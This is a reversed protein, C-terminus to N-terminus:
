SRLWDPVKFQDPKPDPLARKRVENIAPHLNIEDVRLALNKYYEFDDHLLQAIYVATDDDKIQQLLFDFTDMAAFRNCHIAVRLINQIASGKLIFSETNLFIIEMKDAVIEAYEFRIPHKIFENLADSYHLMFPEFHSKLQRAFVILAYDPIKDFLSIFVNQNAQLTGLENIFAVYLDENYSGSKSLQEIQLLKSELSQIPNSEPNLSLQYTKLAQQLEAVSQYRQDPNHSTAKQLIHYLGPTLKKSDFLHPYDCTYLEYFTKGLQFVDTREDANKGQIQEPADYGYTGIFRNSSTHDSSDSHKMKALGFDSLLIENNIGLLINAPKIDRHYLGNQHLHAIALFVKNMIFCVKEIEGCLKSALIKVNGKALPMVFCPDEDNLFSEFIPMINQHSLSQQIKVERKFRRIDNVDQCKKLAFHDGSEDIVKFVIGMGGQGIEEVITYQGIKDMKNKINLNHIVFVM